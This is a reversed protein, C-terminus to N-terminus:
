YTIPMVWAKNFFKRNLGDGGCGFCVGKFRGSWVGTGGCRQCPHNAALKRRLLERGAVVRADEFQPTRGMVEPMLYLRYRQGNETYAVTCFFKGGAASVFVRGKAAFAATEIVIGHEALASSIAQPQAATNM